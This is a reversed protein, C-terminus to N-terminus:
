EIAPKILTPTKVPVAQKELSSGKLSPINIKPKEPRLEIRSPIRTRNFLFSVRSSPSSISAIGPKINRAYIMFEGDANTYTRHRRGGVELVIKALPLPQATQSYAVGKIWPGTGVNSLETVAYTNFIVDVFVNFVYPDTEDASCHLDVTANRSESTSEGSYNYQGLELKYNVSETVGLGLFSLFGPKANQTETYLRNVVQYTAQVTEDGFHFSNSWGQGGGCGMTIEDIHKYRSSPLYPTSASVYPNLDLLANASDETLGLASM